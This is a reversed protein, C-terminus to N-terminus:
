TPLIIKLDFIIQAIYNCNDLHEVVGSLMWLNLLKSRAPNVEWVEQQQAINRKQIGSM